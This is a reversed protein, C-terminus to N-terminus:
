ESVAKMRRAIWEVVPVAVSNGLMRYRASDSLGSTWGDPLGQLRECEVPTLRRVRWHSAVRTADGDVFGIGKADRAGVAYAVEPIYTENDLDRLHHHAGIPAAVAQMAGDLTHAVDVAIGSGNTGTQAMRVAYSPALVTQREGGYRNEGTLAYALEPSTDLRRGGDATGREMIALVPTRNSGNEAAGLTPSVNEALGLGHAGAGQGGKFALVLNPDDETRRGSGYAGGGIPGAIEERAKGRAPPHRPGSGPEFLIEGARRGRFDAVVFVRRRRQAVGFWQADLVRWAIDLAGADALLDLATAFDAGDSSSLSGGVNEWFAFRPGVARIIRVAETFLGSREGAFGKRKGALSLDQCPSGFHIVDAATYNRVERVDTARETEPWHRALITNCAKDIECQLVSPIGARGFALDMGGCGSFLSIANM